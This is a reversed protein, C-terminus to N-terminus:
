RVRIVFVPRAVEAIQDILDFVEATKLETPGIKKRPVARCHRCTLNCAKTSEWFVLRLSPTM